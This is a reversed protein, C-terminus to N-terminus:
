RRGGRGGNRLDVGRGNGERPVERGLLTRGYGREGVDDDAVLDVAEARGGARAEREGLDLRAGAFLVPLELRPHHELCVDGWTLAPEGRRSIDNNDTRCEPSVRATPKGSIHEVGRPPQM